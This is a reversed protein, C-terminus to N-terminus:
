GGSHNRRCLSNEPARAREHGQDLFVGIVDDKLRINELVNGEFRPAFVTGIGARQHPHDGRHALANEVPLIISAIPSVILLMRLVSLRGLEIGRAFRERGGDVFPHPDGELWAARQHHISGRPHGGLQPKLKAENRAALFPAPGVQGLGCARAEDHREIKRLQGFQRVLIIPLLHREVLEARPVPRRFVRRQKPLLVQIERECSVPKAVLLLKSLIQAQCHIAAEGLGIGQGRQRGHGGFQATDLLAEAGDLLAFQGEKSDNVAFAIELRLGLDM